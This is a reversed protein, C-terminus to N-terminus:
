SRDLRRLMWYPPPGMGDAITRAASSDKGHVSMWPYPCVSPVVIVKRDWSSWASATAPRFSCRSREQPRSPNTVVTRTTSGSPRSTGLSPRVVPCIM